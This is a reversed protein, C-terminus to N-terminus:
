PRSAVKTLRAPDRLPRGHGFLVVEPRLAALRRMSDRNQAKDVTLIGYPAAVRGIRMFVDGCILVRDSERWLSIHGPSHGPTDLVEFGAVEDGERLGRDVQHAPPTPLKSLLAPIRGPGPVPRGTEIAEADKVGTWVPVGFLEAMAHTSGFHDPHAHTVLHASVSHGSLQRTLRRAASPTGADVLVDGVLYVNVLHPPRGALQHVGPAVERM